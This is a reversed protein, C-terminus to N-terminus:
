CPSRRELVCRSEAKQFCLQPMKSSVFSRVVAVYFVNFSESFCLFVPEVVSLTCHCDPM